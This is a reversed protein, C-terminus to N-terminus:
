GLACFEHVISALFSGMIRTSTHGPIHMTLVTSHENRLKSYTVRDCITLHASSLDLRYGFRSVGHDIPLWDGPKHKGRAVTEVGM